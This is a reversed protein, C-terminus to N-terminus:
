HLWRPPEDRGGVVKLKHARRRFQREAIAYRTRLWWGGFPLGRMWALVLAQAAFHPVYHDLGGLLAFLVTGGVTALILNRGRLPLVFYVLIQRNPYLSAWALLLATVPAWTGLYVRPGLGVWVLSLLTTVGAGGAALVLYTIVFRLPGWARALDSGFWYLGLCGFVLSLPELDLFVWTFLRWAEGGLVARPVFLGSEYPAIFGSRALVAALISYLMTVSILVLVVLPVSGGLVPVERDLARPRRPM